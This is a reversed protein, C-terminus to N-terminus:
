SPHFRVNALGCAVALVGWAGPDPIDQRQKGEADDEGVYVSRGLKAKMGKTSQAGEECCRVAEEIGNPLAKVFPILADMLTRDGPKAPTYKSLTELAAQAAEPWSNSGSQPSSLARSLGMLYLAFLGGSTGGMQDEVILSLSSVLASDSTLDLEKAEIAKLIAKAGKAWTEGCDGDGVITDFRTLSEEAELVSKCARSVAEIYSEKVSGVGAKRETQEPRSSSEHQSLLQGEQRQSWGGIGGKWAVAETPLDVCDLIGNVTGLASGECTREVGDLNLLSISFGPGNLSTMFSSCLVRDIRVRRDRELQRTAESVIGGMELISMGGLNNVYLLVRDDEKFQVFNRDSDTDFILDLMEKITAEPSPTPNLIRAGPENHLGMGLSSAKQPLSDSEREARGPVHCHDLSLGISALHAVVADGLVKM